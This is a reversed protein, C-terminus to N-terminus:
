RVVIKMSTINIDGTALVRESRYDVPQTFETPEDSVGEVVLVFELTERVEPNETQIGDNVEVSAPKPLAFELEVKEMM